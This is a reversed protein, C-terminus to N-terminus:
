SLCINPDDEDSDFEVNEDRYWRGHCDRKWGSATFRLEQEQRKQLGAQGEVLVKIASKGGVFPEGKESEVLGTYGSWKEMSASSSAVQSDCPSASSSRKLDNSKKNASYISFRSSQSELIARRTQEILPKEKTDSSRVGLHQNGANSFSAESSVALRKNIEQQKSLEKERLMSAAAIHRSGRNHMSLMLPSDLVPRHPCVLCALKGNSFRKFSDSASPSSSAPLMLDDLRRKRQQAERAWGDGGFVSMVANQDGDGGGGGPAPYIRESWIASRKCSWRDIQAASAM